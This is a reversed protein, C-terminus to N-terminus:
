PTPCTRGRAPASRSIPSITQFIRDPEPLACRAIVPWCRQVRLASCSLTKYRMITLSQPEVILMYQRTMFAPKQWDVPKRSWILTVHLDEPDAVTVGLARAIRLIPQITNLPRGIQIPFPNTPPLNSM